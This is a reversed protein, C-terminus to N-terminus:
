RSFLSFNLGPSLIREVNRSEQAAICASSGRGARDQPHCHVGRGGRLGGGAAEAGEVKGEVARPPPEQHSSGDQEGGLGARTRGPGRKLSFVRQCLGDLNRQIAPIGATPKWDHLPSVAGPDRPSIM